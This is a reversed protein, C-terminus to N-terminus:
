ESKRSWDTGKPVNVTTFFVMMEPGFVSRRVTKIGFVGAEFRRKL